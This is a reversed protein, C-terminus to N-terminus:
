GHFQYSIFGCSLGAQSHHLALEHHIHGRGIAHNGFPPDGIGLHRRRRLYQALQAPRGLVHDFQQPQSFSIALRESDDHAAGTRHALLTGLAQEDGQAGGLQARGDRVGVLDGADAEIVGVVRAFAALLRGGAGIKKRFDWLVMQPGPSGM